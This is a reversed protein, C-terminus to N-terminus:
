LLDDMLDWKALIHDNWASDQESDEDRLSIPLHPGMLSQEGDLLLMDSSESDLTGMLRDASYVAIAECWANDIEQKIEPSRRMDPGLRDLMVSRAIQRSDNDEYGLLHGLEHLVVSLLDFKGDMSGTWAYLNNAVDGAVLARALEEDYYWGHGAANADLFITHSDVSALGLVDSPLDNVIVRPPQTKLQWNSDALGWLEIGAAVFLEATAQSLTPVTPNAVPTVDARQTDLRIVRIADAQIRGNAGATTLQVILTNGTIEYSAALDVWHGHQDSFSGATLAPAQTQNVLVTSPSNGGLVTFRTNTAALRDAMWTTSVRYVGPELGTIVWEGTTTSRNTAFRATNNVLGVGARDLTSFSGEVVRFTSSRDDLVQATSLGRGRLMLNFTALGADSSQLALQHNYVRFLAPTFTVTVNLNGGPALYQPQFGSLTFGAPLAGISHLFLPNESPNHIRITRSVPVGIPTGGFDLLSEHNLRKGGSYLEVKPEYLHVIRISDAQM